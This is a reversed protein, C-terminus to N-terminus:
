EKMPAQTCDADPAARPVPACPGATRSERGSPALVGNVAVVRVAPEAIGTDVASPGGGPLRGGGAGAADPPPGAASSSTEGCRAPPNLFLTLLEGVQHDCEAPHRFPAIPNVTYENRRGVRHRTLYGADELDAIIAHTARETIGVRAAVDRLRARPDRTIAVLVHGHNTLLTWPPLRWAGPNIM